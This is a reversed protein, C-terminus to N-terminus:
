PLAPAISPEVGHRGRVLRLAVLFALAAVVLIAAAAVSADLSSQFEAYVVLPLTQTVGPINGAVMITAGFEGLSRAWALTAGAILSPQAIVATVHRFVAWEGAGDVRAADELDRHVGAFGARAAAVYFPASV